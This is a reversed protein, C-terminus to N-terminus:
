ENTRTQPTGRAPSSRKRPRYPRSRRPQRPRRPPSHPLLVEPEPEEHDACRYLLSQRTLPKESRVLRSFNRDKPPAGEYLSLDIVRVGQKQSSIQLRDIPRARIKKSPSNQIVHYQTVLQQEQPTLRGSYNEQIWARSADSPNPQRAPFAASFPLVRFPFDRVATLTTPLARRLPDPDDPWTRIEWAQRPPLIRARADDFAVIFSLDWNTHGALVNLPKQMFYAVQPHEQCLDGSAIYVPKPLDFCSALFHWQNAVRQSEQSSWIAFYPTHEQLELFIRPLDPNAYVYRMDIYTRRVDPREDLERNRTRSVHCLVGNLDFVVLPKQM